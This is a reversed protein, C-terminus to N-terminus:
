SMRIVSEYIAPNFSSLMVRNMIDYKELVNIVNEAAKDYSFAYDFTTMWTVPDLPGKVELNILLTPHRLSETLWEDLTPMRGGLGIDIVEDTLDVTSWEFIKEGPFNFEDMSGRDHGHIVM